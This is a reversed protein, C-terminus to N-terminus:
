APRKIKKGDHHAQLDEKSPMSGTARRWEWCWRCLLTRYVPEWRPGGHRGKLRACSTCGAEAKKDTEQQQVVNPKRLMFREAESMVARTWQHSASIGGEMAMRSQHAHDVQGAGDATSDSYDPLPEGDEDTARRPSRDFGSSRPWGNFSERNRQLVTMGDRSDPIEFAAILRGTMDHLEHLKRLLEADNM